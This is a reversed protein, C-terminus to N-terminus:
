KEPVNKGYFKGIRDKLALVIIEAQLPFVLIRFEILPIQFETFPNRIRLGAILILKWEDRFEPRLYAPIRIIATYCYARVVLRTEIVPMVPVKIFIVDNDDVMM